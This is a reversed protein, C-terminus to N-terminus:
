AVENRFNKINTFVDEILYIIMTIFTIPLSIWVYGMKIQTLVIWNYNWFTTVLTKSYYTLFGLFVIMIMNNVLKMISAKKPSMKEILVNFAFHERHRVMVAAGMFVAYVFSFTAIEETWLVSLKAYRAFIQILTAVLFTSLFLVGLTLQIKEILNVLKKM